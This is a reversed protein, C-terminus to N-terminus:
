VSHGSIEGCDSIGWIRRDLEPRGNGFITL